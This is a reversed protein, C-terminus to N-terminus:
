PRRGLAALRRFAGAVLRLLRPLRPLLLLM